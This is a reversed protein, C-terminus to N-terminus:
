AAGRRYAILAPEAAIVARRDGVNCVSELARALKDATEELRGLARAHEAACAREAQWEAKVREYEERTVVGGVAEDSRALAREVDRRLEDRAQDTSLDDLPWIEEAAAEIRRADVSM